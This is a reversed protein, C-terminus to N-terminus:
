EKSPKAPQCVITVEVKVKTGSTAIGTITLTDVGGTRSRTATGPEGYQPEKARVVFQPPTGGQPTRIGVNLLFNKTTSGAPLTDSDFSVMRVPLNVEDDPFEVTFSNARHPMMLDMKGCVRSIGRATYRGDYHTDNTVTVTVETPRQNVIEGAQGSARGSSATLAAVIAISTSWTSPKMFPDETRPVPTVGPGYKYRM